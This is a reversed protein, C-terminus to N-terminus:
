HPGHCPENILRNAVERAYTLSVNLVKVEHLLIAMEEALSVILDSRGEVRGLSIEHLIENLRVKVEDHRTEIDQLTRM